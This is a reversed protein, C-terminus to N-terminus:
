SAFTNLLIQQFCSIKSFIFGAVYAKIIIKRFNKKLFLLPCISKITTKITLQSLNWIFITSWFSEMM